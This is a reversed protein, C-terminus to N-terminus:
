WGLEREICKKYTQLPAVHDKIAEAVCRDFIAGLEGASLSSRMVKRAIKIRCDRWSFYNMHDSCYEESIQAAIVARRDVAM